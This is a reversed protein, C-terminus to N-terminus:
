PERCIIRATPAIRTLLNPFGVITSPFLCIQYQPSLQRLFTAIDAYYGDVLNGGGGIFVHPHSPMTAPACIEVTEFHASLFRWCALNIAADGVNGPNPFFSVPADKPVPAALWEFAQVAELALAAVAAEIPSSAQIDAM